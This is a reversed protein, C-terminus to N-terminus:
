DNSVENLASKLYESSQQRVKSLKDQVETWNKIPTVSFNDLQNFLICRNELGLMKLLSFIRSNMGNTEEVKHRLLTFFNKKFLISFVSAHFSDTLVYEANKILSIFELPGAQLIQHYEKSLDRKSFPINVIDLNEGGLKEKLHQISSKYTPTDGFLYCFIYPKKLFPIPLAIKEWEDATLLMTPDCVWKADVDAYIKCLEVGRDERVSLNQFRSLYYKFDEKAYDPLDSIGISPGYATKSKENPVFALYYAPNCKGYFTPNWIQDSGCVYQSYSLPARKLSSYTPYKEKSIPLYQKRFKRFKSRRAKELKYSDRYRKSAFGRIGVYVKSERIWQSFNYAYYGSPETYNIIECKQGSFEAIKNALAYAQLCAGCNDLFCTVLGIKEM